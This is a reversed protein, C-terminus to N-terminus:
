RSPDCAAGLGAAAAHGFNRDMRAEAIEALNRVQVHCIPMSRFAYDTARIDQLVQLVMREPAALGDRLGERLERAILQNTSQAEHVAKVVTSLDQNLQPLNLAAMEAQSRSEVGQVGEYNRLM